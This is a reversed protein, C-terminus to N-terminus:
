SFDQSSEAQPKRICHKCYLGTEFGKQQLPLYLKDTSTVTFLLSSVRLVKTGMIDLFEAEPCASPQRYKENERQNCIHSLPSSDLSTGRHIDEQPREYFYIVILITLLRMM